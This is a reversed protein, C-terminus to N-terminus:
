LQGWSFCHTKSGRSGGEINGSAFGLPVNRSFFHLRFKNIILFFFRDCSLATFRNINIKEANEKQRSCVCVYINVPVKLRYTLNYCLRWVSSLILVHFLLQIKM